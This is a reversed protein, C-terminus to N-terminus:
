RWRYETEPRGTGGYRPTRSAVAAEVLHELYRRATIRSTGLM